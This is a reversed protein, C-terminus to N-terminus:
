SLSMLCFAAHLGVEECLKQVNHAEDFIVVSGNFDIDLSKRISDELLYNYPLFIIDASQYLERSMYYPCFSHKAGLKHLDEIDMITNDRLEIRDEKAKEVNTKFICTKAKVRAQHCFIFILEVVTLFRCCNFVQCMHLKERSTPAEMVAPNVCLQDRSGLIAM